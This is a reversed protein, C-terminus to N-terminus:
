PGINELDLLDLKEGSELVLVINSGKFEVSKVTGEKVTQISEETGDLYTAIIEYKYEGPSVYISDNDRGDWVIENQGKQIDGADIIRILDGDKNYINVVVRADKKLEFNITPTDGRKAIKVKDEMGSVQKGVLSAAQSYLLSKQMTSVSELSSSMGLMAELESFQALQSVTEKSDLPNLPDQNKLETVLLLLFDEKGMVNKAMDDQSLIETKNGTTQVGGIPSVNPM